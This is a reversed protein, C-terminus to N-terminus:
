WIFWGRSPSFALHRHRALVPDHDAPLAAAFGVLRVQVLVDALPAVGSVFCGLRRAGAAAPEGRTIKQLMLESREQESIGLEKAQEPIQKDVL